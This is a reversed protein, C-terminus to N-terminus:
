ETLSPQTKMFDMSTSVQIIVGTDYSKRISSLNRGISMGAHYYKKAQRQAPNNGQASFTGKDVAGQIKINSCASIKLGTFDQM